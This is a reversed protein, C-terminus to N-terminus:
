LFNISDKVVCDCVNCYYGGTEAQFHKLNHIIDIIILSDEDFSYETEWRLRTRQSWLRSELAATLTWKTSVLKWSTGRQGLSEGSLILDFTKLMFSEIVIVQRKERQIEWYSRGAGPTGSCKEWVGCPGVEKQPWRAENIQRAQGVDKAPIESLITSIKYM